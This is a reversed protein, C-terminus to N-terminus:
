LKHKYKEEQREMSCVIKGDTDKQWQSQLLPTASLLSGM